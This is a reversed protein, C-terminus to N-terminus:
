YLRLLLAHQAFNGALNVQVYPGFDEKFRTDVLNELFYGSQVGAWYSRVAGQWTSTYCATPTCFTRPYQSLFTEGGGVFCIENGTRNPQDYIYLSSAGCSGDVAIDRPQAGPPRAQAAARAASEARQAAPTIFDTSITPTGDPSLVVVTRSITPQDDASLPDFADDDAACAAFLLMAAGAAAVLPLRKKM